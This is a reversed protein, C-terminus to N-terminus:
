GHTSRNSMDIVKIGAQRYRDWGVLIPSIASLKEHEDKTVICAVVQDLILDSNQPTALLQQIIHKRTYIHEHNIKTVSTPVHTAMEVVAESRYRTAYKGNAESIMWQVSSLVKNRHEPLIQTDGLVINAFRKASYVISEAKAALCYPKVLRRAHRAITDMPNTPRHYRRKAM